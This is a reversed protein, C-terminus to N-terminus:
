ITTSKGPAMHLTGDAGVQGPIPLHVLAGVAVHDASVADVLELLLHAWTPGAFIGRRNGPLLEM